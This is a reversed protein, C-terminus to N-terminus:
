PFPRAAFTWVGHGGLAFSLIVILAITAVLVRTGTDTDPRRTM